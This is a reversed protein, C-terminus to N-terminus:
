IGGFMCDNTAHSFGLAGLAQAAARVSLFCHPDIKLHYADMQNHLWASLMDGILSGVYLELDPKDQVQEIFFSARRVLPSNSTTPPKAATGTCRTPSRLALRRITPSRRM